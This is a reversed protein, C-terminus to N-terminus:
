YQRVPNTKKGLWFFGVRKRTKGTKADEITGMLAALCGNTDLLMAQQGFMTNMLFVDQHIQYSESASGANMGTLIGSQILRFHAALWAEIIALQDDTYDNGCENDVIAKVMLVHASAIFMTLDEPEPISTDVQRVQAPTTFPIKIDAM